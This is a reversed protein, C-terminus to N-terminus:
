GHCRRALGVMRWLGDDGPIVRGSRVARLYPELSVHAREEGYGEDDRAGGRMVFVGVRVCRERALLAFQAGGDLGTM